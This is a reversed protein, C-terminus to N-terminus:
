KDHGRLRAAANDREEPNALLMQIQRGLVEERRYDLIQEAGRNFTRILDKKGVTIVIDATNEVIGQLSELTKLLENQQTEIREAMQDFSDAVLGIEDNRTAAFRFGLEGGGLTHLGRLLRRLPKALFWRFTMVLAVIVLVIAM